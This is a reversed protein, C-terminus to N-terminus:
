QMWTRALIELKNKHKEPMNSLQVTYHRRYTLKYQQSVVMLALM